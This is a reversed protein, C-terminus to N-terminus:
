HILYLFMKANIPKKNMMSGFSILFMVVNLKTLRVLHVCLVKCYLVLYHAQLRGNIHVVSLKLFLDLVLYFYTELHVWWSGFMEERLKQLVPTTTM